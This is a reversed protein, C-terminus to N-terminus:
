HKNQVHGEGTEASRPATRKLRKRAILAAGGAIAGAGVTAVVAALAGADGTQALPALKGGDGQPSAQEVQQAAFTWPATVSSLAFENGMDASATVTFSVPVEGGAEVRALAIGSRLEEANLDGEYALEGGVAVSLRMRSPAEAADERSASAVASSFYFDCPADSENALAITGTKTEGPFITGFHSFLDSASSSLATSAGDFSIRYSGEGEAALAAPAFGALLCGSFFLAVLASRACAANARGRERARMGPAAPPQTPLASQTRSPRSMAKM